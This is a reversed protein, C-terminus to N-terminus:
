NHVEKNHLKSRAIGKRLTRTSEETCQEWVIENQIAEEHHSSILPLPLAIGTAPRQSRYPQSIDLSGCKGSLRSVSPSSTTLRVGQGGEGRPLNRTSMETSPQTSGLAMNRSSPNPWNFFGIVEEPNSGTQLMTGWGVVSASAALVLLRGM